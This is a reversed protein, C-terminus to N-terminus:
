GITSLFSKSTWTFVEAKVDCSILFSGCIAIGFLGFESASLRDFFLFSDFPWRFVLTELVVPSSTDIKFGSSKLVNQEILLTKSNIPVGANILKNYNGFNM